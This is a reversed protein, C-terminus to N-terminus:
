DQRQMFTPVTLWLAHAMEYFEVLDIRRRGIEVRAIRSQSWGLKQALDMQSMGRAHRTEILRQMLEDYAALAAARRRSAAIPKASLPKVPLKM